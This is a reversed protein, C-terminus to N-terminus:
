RGRRHPWSRLEIKPLQRSAELLEPKVFPKVLIVGAVFGGLHALFAVGTQAGMGGLSPLSGLFQIFAWYLLMLYAPVAATTVFFGLFILTHIRVRPFLVLYAGMVGSIAGSAGVIPIPSSPESVIQALAALVGCILYFAIFRGHGMSDEVNDGFIWLFWMNGLIHFWGGHMFMSTLVTHWEPGPSIQCVMGPGVPIQVASGLENLLEAPKAGFQCVSSALGPQSGAGQILVWVISTLIIFGITTVPTLNTPNEDRYPFVHTFSGAAYTDTM